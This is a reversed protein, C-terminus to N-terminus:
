PWSQRPLDAPLRADGSRGQGTPVARVVVGGCRAPTLGSRRNRRVLLWWVGKMPCPLRDADVRQFEVGAVAGPLKLQGAFRGRSKLRKDAVVLVDPAQVSCCMAPSTLPSRERNRAVPCVSSPRQRAHPDGRGSSGNPGRDCNGAALAGAWPVGARSDEFMATRVDRSPLCVAGGLKLGDHSRGLWAHKGCVGATSRAAALTEVQATGRPAAM